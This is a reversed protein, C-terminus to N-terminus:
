TRQSWRKEVGMRACPEQEASNTPFGIHSNHNHERRGGLLRVLFLSVNPACWPKRWRHLCSARMSTFVIRTARASKFLLGDIYHLLLSVNSNNQYWNQWMFRQNLLKGEAKTLKVSPQHKTELVQSASQTNRPQEPPFTHHFCFANTQFIKWYFNRHKRKFDNSNSPWLFYKLHKIQFFREVQILQCRKLQGKTRQFHSNIMSFSDPFFYILKIM